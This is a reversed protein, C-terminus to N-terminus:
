MVKMKRVLRSYNKKRFIVLTDRMASIVNASGLSIGRFDKPPDSVTEGVFVVGISGVPLFFKNLM